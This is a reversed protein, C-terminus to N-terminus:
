KDGSDMSNTKCAHCERRVARKGTPAECQIHGCFLTLRTYPNSKPMQDAHIVTVLEERTVRNIFNWPSRNSM